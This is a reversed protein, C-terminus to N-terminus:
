NEYPDVVKISKVYYIKDEGGGLDYNSLGSKTSNWKWGATSRVNVLYGKIQILDGNRVEKIRHAIKENEPIIHMNISNSNIEDKSIPMTDSEWEYDRDDQSIDIEDTVSSDSMKGWGLVFDAPSLRAQEDFYYRKISLVRAEVEYESFPSFIFEDRRFTSVPPQTQFPLGSAMIGPGLDPASGVYYFHKWAFFVIVILILKKMPNIRDNFILFLGAM